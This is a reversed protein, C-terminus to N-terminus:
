TRGHREGVCIHHGLAKAQGNTFNSHCLHPTQCDRPWEETVAEFTVGADPFPSVAVVYGKRLSVVPDDVSYRESASCNGPAALQAEDAFTQWGTFSRQQSIPVACLYNM